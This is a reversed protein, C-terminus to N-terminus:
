AALGQDLAERYVRRAPWAGLGLAVLLMTALMGLFAPSPPLIPLALGFRSELWPGCVLVGIYGLGVGILIGALALLAAEFVILRSLGWPGLGLARLIALERRREEVMTRVAVALGLLAVLASVGAFFLLTGEFPRWTQWLETLAVGPLVATVPEGRRDEELRRKLGFAASREDLGLFIAALEVEDPHHSHGEEGLETVEASFSESHHLLALSALDILIARDLPGGTNELEGVVGCPHDDHSTLTEGLGHRLVIERGPVLELRRAVEAGLVAECGAAFARGRRFSLNGGLRSRWRSFVEPSTAIVRFGAFSDGLAIPIAWTIGPEARLRELIEPELNRTAAGIGFLSYLLLQQESGRAGVILDTGGATAAFADRVGRRVLDVALLLTVSLAITALTLAATTRRYGLSAAALRLLFSWENM